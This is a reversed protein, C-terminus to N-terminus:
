ELAVKSSTTIRNKNSEFVWLGQYNNSIQNGSLNNKNSYLFRIGIGRKYEKVINRIIRNNQSNQLKIGATSPMAEHAGDMMNMEVINESAGYLWVGIGCEVFVCTSVQCNRVNLLHVGRGSSGSNRIAEIKLNKVTVGDRQVLVVTGNLRWDGLITTKEKDEGILSISKDILVSGNYIGSKVLVVDGESANDVAEQVSAYDDPVIITKTKAKVLGNQPLSVLVFTLFLAVILTLTLATKNMVAGVVALNNPRFPRKIM